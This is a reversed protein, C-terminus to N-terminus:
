TAHIVFSAKQVATASALSAVVYHMVTKKGDVVNRREGGIDADFKCHRAIAPHRPEPVITTTHTFKCNNMWM